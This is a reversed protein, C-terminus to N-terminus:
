QTVFEYPTCFRATLTQCRACGRQAIKRVRDASSGRPQV